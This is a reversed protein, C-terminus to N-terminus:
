FLNRNGSFKGLVQHTRVVTLGPRDPIGTHISMMGNTTTRGSAIFRNYFRGKKFLQNFYPTIEKGEVLGNSIPSIFKGTWNVLMILVVNPPTRPNTVKLVRLNPYKDSIFEAGAYATEKRVITIAEQTELKLFKPISQRKLDM